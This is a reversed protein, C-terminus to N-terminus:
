PGGHCGGGTPMPTRCATVALYVGVGVLGAAVGIAPGLFTWRRYWPKPHVVPVVPGSAVHVEVSPELSCDLTAHKGPELQIDQARKIRGPASLVVHLTAPAEHVIPPLPAMGASKGDIEIFTGPDKCVDLTGFYQQELRAVRSQIDDVAKADPKIAIYARYAAIAEAWRALHELAEGELKHPINANPVLQAAERYAALASEYDGANSAAVGRQMALEAKETADDAAPQARAWSSACIAAAIILHRM